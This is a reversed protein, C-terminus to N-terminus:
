ANEKDRVLTKYLSAIKYLYLTEVDVKKNLPIWENTPQKAERELELRACPSQYDSGMIYLMNHFLDHISLKKISWAGASVGFKTNLLNAMTPISIEEVSKKLVKIGENLGCQIEELVTRIERLKLKSLSAEEKEVLRVYENMLKDFLEKNEYAPVGLEALQESIFNQKVRVEEKSNNQLFSDFIQMLEIADNRIEPKVKSGKIMLRKEGNKIRQRISAYKKLAQKEVKPIIEQELLNLFEKCLELIFRQRNFKLLTKGGQKLTTRNTCNKDFVKVLGKSELKKKLVTSWTSENIYEPAIDKRYFTNDGSLMMSILAQGYAENAFLNGRCEGKRARNALIIHTPKKGRKRGKVWGQKSKAM